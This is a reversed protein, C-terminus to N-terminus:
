LQAATMGESAATQIMKQGHEDTGTLFFVDKGDLKQFRALADTAIAEYAHGIHPQGNPYAIATTIYYMNGRSAAPKPAAAAAAAAPKAVPAPTKKPAAPKPAAPAPALSKPPAATKAAKPASAPKGTKAKTAAKRAAKKAAKKAAPKKAKKAAKKTKKAVAKRTRNKSAAAATKKAKKKKSSKKSSSKRAVVFEKTAQFPLTAAIRKNLTDSGRAAFVGLFCLTKARSQLGRYRTGCPRDKGM